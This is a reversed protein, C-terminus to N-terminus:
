KKKVASKKAKVKVAKVTKPKEIMKRLEEVRKNLTRIEAKCECEVTEKAPEESPSIISDPLEIDDQLQKNEAQYIANSRIFTKM